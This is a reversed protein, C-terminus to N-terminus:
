ISAPPEQSMRTTQWQALPCPGGVRTGGVRYCAPSCATRLWSASETNFDVRIVLAIAAVHAKKTHRCQRITLLWNPCSKLVQHRGAVEHLCMACLLFTSPSEVIRWPRHLGRLNRMDAERETGVGMGKCAMGQRGMMSSVADSWM